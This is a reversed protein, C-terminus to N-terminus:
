GKLMFIYRKDRRGGEGLWAWVSLSDGCGRCRCHDERGGGMMEGMVRVEDNTGVIIDRGDDRGDRVGDNAGAIYSSVERGACM